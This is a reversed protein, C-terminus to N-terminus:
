LVRTNIYFKIKKCFFCSGKYFGLRFILGIFLNKKIQLRCEQRLHKPLWWLCLRLHAIWFWYGRLLFCWRKLGFHLNIRSHFRLLIDLKYRLMYNYCNLYRLLYYWNYLDYIRYLFLSKLFEMHLIHHLLFMRNAGRIFFCIHIRIQTRAPIPHLLGMGTSDM